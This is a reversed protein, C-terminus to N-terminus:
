NKLLRFFTKMDIVYILSLTTILLSPCMHRPYSNVASLPIYTAATCASNKSRNSISRACVCVLNSRSDMRHADTALCPLRNRCRTAWDHVIHAMSPHPFYNFAHFYGKPDTAESAALLRHPHKDQRSHRPQDYCINTVHCLAVSNIGTQTTDTRHSIKELFQPLRLADPWLCM